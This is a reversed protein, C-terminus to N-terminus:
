AIGDEGQQRGARPLFLLLAEVRPAPAHAADVRAQDQWAVEVQRRVELDHLEVGHLFPRDVVARDLPDLRRVGPARRARLGSSARPPAVPLGSPLSRAGIFTPHWRLDATADPHSRTASDMRALRRM